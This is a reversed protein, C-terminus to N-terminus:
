KVLADTPYVLNTYGSKEMNIFDARSVPNRLNLSRFQWLEDGGSTLDVQYSNFIYKRGNYELGYIYRYQCEAPKSECSPPTKDLDPNYAGTYYGQGKYALVELTVGDIVAVKAPQATLNEGGSIKTITESITGSTKYVEVSFSKQNAAEGSQLTYSAESHLGAFSKGDGPFRLHLERAAALMDAGLQGAPYYNRDILYDNQGLYNLYQSGAYISSYGTLPTLILTNERVFYDAVANIYLENNDKSLDIKKISTNFEFDFNNAIEAFPVNRKNSTVKTSYILNSNAINGLYYEWDTITFDESDALMKVTITDSFASKDDSSVPRSSITLMRDTQDCAGQYSYSITYYTKGNVSQTGLLKANDGYYSKILEYPDTIPAPEGIAIPEPIPAPLPAPTPLTDPSVPTEAPGTIPTAPDVSERGQAELISFINETQVAYQGGAYAISVNDKTLNYSNLNGKTDYEIVKSYYKGEKDAYDSFVTRSLKGEYVTAAPCKAQGAKYTTTTETYGEARPLRYLLSNMQTMPSDLDSVRTTNIARAESTVSNKGQALVAPSNSQLIKRLIEREQEQSYRTSFVQPFIRTVLFGSGICCFACALLLIVLGFILKRKSLNKM